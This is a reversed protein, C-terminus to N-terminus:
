KKLRAIFFGQTQDKYPYFRRTDELGIGPSGAKTLPKVLRLGQNIAHEVVGENEDPNLTCTSYVLTGGEKLVSIGAEVLSLQESVLRKYHIERGLLEPNKHVTGEASCPADLLVKDFGLGMETVEQAKMNLSIVNECGMRECNYFVSRLRHKNSDFAVVAGTNKLLESIHTTKAGPAATMDLVLEDQKLGLESVAIMSAADQLMYLGALYEPTAGPSFPEKHIMVAQPHSPHPEPMFGKRELRELLEERGLRLSNARITTPPKVRRLGELDSKPIVGKYRKYIDM